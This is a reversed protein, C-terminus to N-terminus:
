RRRRLRTRPRFLPLGKEGAYLDLVAWSSPNGVNASHNTVLIRRGLFAVSGPADVPVELSLNEIPGSPVRAREEGTPSIVAIQNAGALALYVTGSRGVAFGDPGDVPRSRWFLQLEGPRRKRGKLPVKFLAGSAPPDAPSPFTSTAALLLTRGRDIFQIGNPGFVSELRPDTLWVRATGGGRPVRWILAQEIDTVFLGGGPGFAAYDPEAARNGLTASCDSSGEVESCPPVDHFRAYTRQKGTRPNLVIVRPDASRDLAFLRGARNFALGQIGHDESLSQGEIVYERLLQGFRSYVFIKSPADADGKGLQNTGVYVRRRSDIAIPEPQGPAPIRAFVRLDLSERAHSGGAVAGVPLLAALVLLALCTPTWRLRWRSSPRERDCGRM